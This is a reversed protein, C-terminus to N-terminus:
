RISCKAESWPTLPEFGKRHAKKEFLYKLTQITDEFLELELAEQLSFWQFNKAKKSLNLTHDPRALYIFDIHQHPAENGISPIQELLCLFPKEVSKANAEQIQLDEQALFQIRLGTEEFVERKAAEPPTEGEEMHGGPPLWKKLKSHFHLLVKGECFLYVTATFHREM